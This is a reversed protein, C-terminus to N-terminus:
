AAPETFEPRWSYRRSLSAGGWRDRAYAVAQRANLATTTNGLRVHLAQEEAGKPYVPESAPSIKLLCLEKDQVACFGVKIWSAFPGEGFATVLVNRLAQEFGDRNPRTRLTSYDSELGLVQGQDSLGIILNGGRYSNLFGAVTKIVVKEMERDPKSAQYNWRLSSKFEVTDSEQLLPIQACSIEPVRTRHLYAAALGVTLSWLVIAVLANFEASQHLVRQEGSVDLYVSIIGVKRGSRSKVPQLFISYYSDGIQRAPILTSRDPIEPIASKLPIGGIAWRLTGRADIVACDFAEDIAREPTALADSVSRGFRDANATFRAAIDGPTIEARAGLIVLGDTLKHVYLNWTEGVESKFRFPRDYEVGFPESVRAVMGPLYGHSDILTGDESVVLYIDPGSTTRRYGQLNWSDTYAIDEKMGDALGSLEDNAKQRLQHSLFFYQGGAVVTFLVASALAITGLLSRFRRSM